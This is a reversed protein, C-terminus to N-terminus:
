KLVWCCNFCVSCFQYLRIIMIFHLDQFFYINTFRFTKFIPMLIIFGKISCVQRIIGTRLGHESLSMGMKIALLRMSRHCFYIYRIVFYISFILCTGKINPSRFFLCLFFIVLDM